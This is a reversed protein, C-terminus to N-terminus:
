SPEQRLNHHGNPRIGAVVGSSQLHAMLSLVTFDAIRMGM